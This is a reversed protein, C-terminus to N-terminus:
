SSRKRSNSPSNIIKEIITTPSGVYSRNVNQVVSEFMHYETCHLTINERREEIKVTSLIKDIVFEKKIEFGSNIEEAEVLTISIKEGGQIDVDQIINEEDAFSLVM